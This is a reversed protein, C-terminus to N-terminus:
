LRLLASQFGQNRRPNTTKESKSRKKDNRGKRSQTDSKKRYWQPVEIDSEKNWKSAERNWQYRSGNWWRKEGKGSYVQNKLWNPAKRDKVYVYREEHTLFEDYKKGKRPSGDGDEAKKKTSALKKKASKLQSELTQVNQKMQAQQAMLLQVDQTTETMWIKKKVLTAYKNQVIQMLTQSTQVSTKEEHADKRKDLWERFAKCTIQEYADWLTLLLDETPYTVGYAALNKTASNVEEHIKPIDGDVGAAFKALGIIRGREREVTAVSSITNLDIITALLSLGRQFSVDTADKYRGEWHGILEQAKEDMSAWIVRHLIDLDQSQRSNTTKLTNEYEKVREQDIQAYSELINIFPGAQVGNTISRPIMIISGENDGQRLLGVQIARQKLREMFTSFRETQMDFLDEGSSYLPKTADSHFKLHEKKSFNLIANQDVAGPNRAFVVPAAAQGAGGGTTNGMANIATVLQTNQVALDNTLQTLANAQAQQMAEIVARMSNTLATAFAQAGFVNAQAAPNVQQQTEDAEGGAAGGARRRSSM